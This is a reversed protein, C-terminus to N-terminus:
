GVLRREKGPQFIRGQCAVGRAHRRLLFYQHGLRLFVHKEFPFLHFLLLDLGQLRHQIGSQASIRREGRPLGSFGGSVM